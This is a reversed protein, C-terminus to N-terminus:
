CLCIDDVLQFFFFSKTKKLFILILVSCLQEMKQHDHRVQNTIQHTQNIFEQVRAWPHYGKGLYNFGYQEYYSLHDTYLYVWNFSFKGADNKARELSLSGYAHGRYDEDIYRAYIWPYLDMQSIFDNTILGACGIINEEEM